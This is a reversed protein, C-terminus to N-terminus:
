NIEADQNFTGYIILVWKDIIAPREGGNRVTLTWNGTPNEDWYHTSMLPWIGFGGFGGSSRDVPREALLNSTTGMASTLSISISGRRNVTKIVPILHVHEINAIKSCESGALPLTLEASSGGRIGVEGQWIAECVEQKHVSTWTQALKVMAGADMLGFGFAHSVNYGAGTTIWDNAKLNAMKSTRVTISYM